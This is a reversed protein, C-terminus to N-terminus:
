LSNLLCDMKTADNLMERDIMEIGFLDSRFRHNERIQDGQSLTFLYPKVFLGFDKKLASIKYLTENLINREQSSDFVSTKCEIVFLRNEYTFMIDIENDVNERVIQVGIAIASDSLRLHSKLLFYIYEEFWEGTLYKIEKKSLEKKDDNELVPCANFFDILDENEASLTMKKGRYKRLDDLLQLNKDDLQLYFDFFERTKNETYTTKGIKKPNRIEIGYSTLYEQVGIRFEINKNSMENESHLIRYHNKGIPIYIIKGGLNRFFNHVGIAMIKTGATLNVIFRDSDEFSESNLCKEIDQLSDERVLLVKSNGAVDGGSAQIIHQSKQKEEMKKTSIFLYRDINQQERIFLINPITQDSVLSVLIRAM